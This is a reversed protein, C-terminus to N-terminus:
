ELKDNRGRGGILFIRDELSVQCHNYIHTPTAPLYSWVGASFLEPIDEDDAKGGTM